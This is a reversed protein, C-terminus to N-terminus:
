YIAVTDLHAQGVLYGTLASLIHWLSHWFLYPYGFEWVWCLGLCVISLGGVALAEIPVATIGIQSMYAGGTILASGATFYDVLLALRVESRDKGFELQSYHYWFSVAGAIETLGGLVFDGRIGLALGAFAYCANTALFAVGVPTKPTTPSLDAYSLAWDGTVDDLKEAITSLPGMNDYSRDITLKDKIDAEFSITKEDLEDKQSKFLQIKMPNNTKLTQLPHNKIPYPSLYKRQPSPVFSSVSNGQMSFFAMFVM